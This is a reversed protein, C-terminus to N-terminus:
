TNNSIHMLAESLVETIYCHYMEYLPINTSTIGDEERM